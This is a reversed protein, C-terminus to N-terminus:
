RGWPSYGVLSRQGHSEGPLLVLNPDWQRRQDPNIASQLYYENKFPLILIHERKNRDELWVKLDSFLFKLNWWPFNWKKEDLCSVLEGQWEWVYLHSREEEPLRAEQVWCSKGVWSRRQQAQSQSFHFSESLATNCFALLFFFWLPKTLGQLLRSIGRDLKAINRTLVTVFLSHIEYCRCLSSGVIWTSIECIKMCQVMSQYALGEVSVHINMDLALFRHLFKYRVRQQGRKRRGEIKGLLLSKELSDNRQMLHGFYQFKLKLM